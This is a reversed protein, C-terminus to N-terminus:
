GEKVSSASECVEREKVEGPEGTTSFVNVLQVNPDSSVPESKTSLPESFSTEADEGHSPSSLSISSRDDASLWDLEECFM